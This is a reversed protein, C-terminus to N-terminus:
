KKIFSLVAEEAKIIAEDLNDNTICIDFEKEYSLEMQARAMRKSLTEPTESLRNILRKELEDLSPPKIFIALANENFIKKINVGGLVDLDFLVHKGKQWIRTLESKLTGYYSGSYVEEWEIFENNAIKKKFEDVSLFYYDTGHIEGDRKPRSCASVSFELPLGKKLLEKVITTKGSGSPASFIVSKGM